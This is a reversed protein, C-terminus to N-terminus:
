KKEGRINARIKMILKGLTNQGEGKYVGWFTDHWWNGEILEMDDTAMLKERLEPISFKMELLIEMIGVKVEEWDSRLDLKRAFRKAKGPGMTAIQERAQKDMTKAAQFANEVTPYMIGLEDLVEAPWFNSLWSYEGQFQEVRVVLEEGKYYGCNRSKRSM